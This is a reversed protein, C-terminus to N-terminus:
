FFMNQLFTNHMQSIHSFHVIYIIGGERSVAPIITSSLYGPIGLIPCVLYTALIAYKARAMSCWVASKQPFRVAMYRWIAVTVTLWTSITHSVLTFHQHFVTFSAWRYSFQDDETKHKQIYNHYAFPLYSSMVFIDSIALGILIANTPSLMNKQLASHYQPRQCHNRVYLM